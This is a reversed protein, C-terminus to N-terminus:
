QGYRVTKALMEGRKRMTKLYAEEASVKLEKKVVPKKAKKQVKEGDDEKPKAAKELQAKCMDIKYRAREPSITALELPDFLISECQFNIGPVPNNRRYRLSVAFSQDGRTGGHYNLGSAEIMAIFEQSTM